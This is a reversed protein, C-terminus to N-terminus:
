DEAGSRAGDAQQKKDRRGSPGANITRETRAVLKVLPYGIGGEAAVVDPQGNEGSVALGARRPVFDRELAPADAM